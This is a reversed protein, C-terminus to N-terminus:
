PRRRNVARKLFSFLVIGLTVAGAAAGFARYALETGTMLVAIGALAWLWGDGARSAALMWWRLWRQPTWHQMRRMLLLDTDFLRTIASGLTMPVEWCRVSLM